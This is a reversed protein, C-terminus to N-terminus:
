YGPASAPPSAPPVVIVTTNSGPTGQDTTSKAPEAPAPAPAPTPSAPVNVVTPRDCASLAAMALLALVWAWPTKQNM